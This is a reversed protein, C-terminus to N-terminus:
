ENQIVNHFNSPLVVEKVMNEKIEDQNFEKSPDKLIKTIAEEHKRAAKAHRPKIIM